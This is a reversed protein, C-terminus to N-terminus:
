PLSSLYKGLMLGGLEPGRSTGKQHQHKVVSYLVAWFGPSLAAEGSGGPTGSCIGETSVSPDM